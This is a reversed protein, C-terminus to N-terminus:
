ESEIGQECLYKRYWLWLQSSNVTLFHNYKKTGAATSSDAENRKGWCYQHPDCVQVKQGSNLMQSIYKQNRYM